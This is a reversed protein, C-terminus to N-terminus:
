DPVLYDRNYEDADVADLRYNVLSAVSVASQVETYRDTLAEIAGLTDPNFVDRGETMFAFLVSTSPPFREQVELVEPRYPDSEDLIATYGSEIETYQMGWAVGLAFLLSFAALWNRKYLLQDILTPM